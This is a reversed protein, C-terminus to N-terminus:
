QLRRRLPQPSLIPQFASHDIGQLLAGSGIAFDGTFRSFLALAEPQMVHLVDANFLRGALMAVTRHLAHEITYSVRHKEWLCLFGTEPHINPHLVPQDIYLEM